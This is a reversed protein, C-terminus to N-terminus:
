SQRLLSYLRPDSIFNHSDVDIHHFDNNESYDLIFFDNTQIHNIKYM